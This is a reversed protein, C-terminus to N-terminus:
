TESWEPILSNHIMLGSPVPRARTFLTLSDTLVGLQREKDPCASPTGGVMDFGDVGGTVVLVGVPVVMGAVFLLVVPLSLILQLPM